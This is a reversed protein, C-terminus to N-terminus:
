FKLLLNHFNSFVYLGVGSDAYWRLTAESNDAVTVRANEFFRECLEVPKQKDKASCRMLIVGTYVTHTRNNLRFALIILKSIKSNKAIFTDWKKLM